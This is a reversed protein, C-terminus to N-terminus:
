SSEKGAASQELGAEPGFRPFPRLQHVEVQRRVYRGQWHRLGGGAGSNFTRSPHPDQPDQGITLDTDM